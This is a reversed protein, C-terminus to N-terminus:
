FDELDLRVTGPQSNSEFQIKDIKSVAFFTLYAVDPVNHIAKLNYKISRQCLVSHIVSYVSLLQSNSEFQIKDIKSVAARHIRDQPQGNHIAKLNYKISRQCLMAKTEDWFM